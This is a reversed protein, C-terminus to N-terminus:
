LGVRGTRNILVDLMEDLTSMTRASAQYGRQFRILNTMEEDLSVGAVAQRRDEVAGVLVEANAQTRAVQRVESGVRAVFATYTQDISGGRLAAISLAIDNAGAASTSGPTVDAATRLVTLGSAGQAPDYGFFALGGPGNDHLDNVQTALSQAVAALEDRYSDIVGDPAALAMLAGLKGGPNTLAAPDWAVREDAATAPDDVVHDDVLPEGAGGFLV